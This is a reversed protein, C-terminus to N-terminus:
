QHAFPLAGANGCLRRRCVWLPPAGARAVGSLSRRQATGLIPRRRYCSSTIFHLYGGGYCRRLRKPMGSRLRENASVSHRIFMEWGQWFRLPPAAESHALNLSLTPWGAWGLIQLRCLSGDGPM